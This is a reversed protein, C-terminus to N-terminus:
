VKGKEVETAVAQPVPDQAPSGEIEVLRITWFDCALDNNCLYEMPMTFYGNKGWSTGWSNRVLFRKTGDDYGVAM